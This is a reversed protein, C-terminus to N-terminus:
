QINIRARVDVREANQEVFQQRSPRREIRFNECLRANVLNPLLDPLNLWCLWRSPEPRRIIALARSFRLRVRDSGREEAVSPPGTRWRRAPQLEARNGSIGCPQM